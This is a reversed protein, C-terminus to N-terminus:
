NEMLVKYRAAAQNLREGPAPPKLLAAVFAQTDRTTLFPLDHERIAERAAAQASRVVFEALTRGQLGAARELLQKQEASIRVVLRALRARPAADRAAKKGTAPMTARWPITLQANFYPM